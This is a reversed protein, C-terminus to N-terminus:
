LYNCIWVLCMKVIVYVKATVFSFCLVIFALIDLTVAWQFCRYKYSAIGSNYVMEDALDIQYKTFSNGTTHFYLRSVQSVYEYGSYKKIDEFFLLNDNVDIKGENFLIKGLKPFFSVLSCIGSTGLLICITYQIINTEKMALIAAIGAVVLAINAANKAEAFNLWSNINAFNKELLEELEKSEM